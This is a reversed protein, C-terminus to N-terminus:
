LTKHVAANVAKEAQYMIWKEVISDLKVREHLPREEFNFGIRFRMVLDEVQSASFLKPEEPAESTGKPPESPDVYHATTTIDLPVQTSADTPPEELKVYM